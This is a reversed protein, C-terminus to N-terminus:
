GAASAGNQRVPVRFVFPEVQVPGSRAKVYEGFVSHLPKDRDIAVGRKEALTRILKMVFTHLRDLGAEPENKEISDHRVRRSAGHLASAYRLSVTGNLIAWQRGVTNSYTTSWSASSTIQNTRGSRGFGTRRPVASMTTSQM